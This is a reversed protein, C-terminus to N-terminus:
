ADAAEEAIQQIIDRKVGLRALRHIVLQMQGADRARVAARLEDALIRRNGRLHTHPAPDIEIPKVCKDVLARAEAWRSRKNDASM